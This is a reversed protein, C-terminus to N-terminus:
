TPPYLEGPAKHPLRFICARRSHTQSCFFTLVSILLCTSFLVLLFSSSQLLHKPFQFWYVCVVSLFFCFCAVFLFSPERKWKQLSFYTRSEATSATKTRELCVLKQCM